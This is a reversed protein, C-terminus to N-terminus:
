FERRTMPSILVRQVVGEGVVRDSVSRLRKSLIPMVDDRNQIVKSSYLAHLEQRFADRVRPMSRFVVSKRELDEVQLIIMLTLHRIAQGERLVSLVMPDLDVFVAEPREPMIEAMEAESADRLLFWWAAGGGGAMLLLVVAGIIILKM